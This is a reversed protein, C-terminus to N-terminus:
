VEANFWNQKDSSYYYCHGNYKHWTNEQLDKRLLQFVSDVKKINEGVNSLADSIWAPGYSHNWPLYTAKTQDITWRFEGENLDTLGIRFYGRRPRGAYIKDNEQKDGIQAIYGNIERCKREADFWNQTDSSYYYCHGNYKHWKNEVFFPYIQLDKGLAQFESDVKRIQEGVTTLDKKVVGLQNQILATISNFSKELKKVTNKLNKEM